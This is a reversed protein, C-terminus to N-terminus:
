IGNRDQINTIEVINAVSVNHKDLITALNAEYKKILDGM